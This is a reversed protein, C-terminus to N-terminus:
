VKQIGTKLFSGIAEKVSLYNLKPKEHEKILKDFGDTLNDLFGTRKGIYLDTIFSDNYDSIVQKLGDFSFNVEGNRESVLNMFINNGCDMMTLIILKPTVDTLHNTQMAGGKIYNLVEITEKIRKKREDDKISYVKDNGLKIEEAKNEKALEDGHLNVFGTKNKSFFRGAMDVDLTFIGKLVTSYLEHEFPVPDGEQRSMVGFDETPKQSLISILLSSKLPATRTLTKKKEARMYGFIDDDEYKFPNAGTFAIKKERSIPSLKWNYREELSLRWWNKFAQGSVYPYNKGGRKISKARIINGTRESADNGANNLASHPADVLIFGHIFKRM